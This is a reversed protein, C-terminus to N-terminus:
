NLGAAFVVAVADTLEELATVSLVSGIRKKLLDNQVCVAM